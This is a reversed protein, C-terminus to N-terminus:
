DKLLKQQTCKMTGVVFPINIVLGLTDAIIETSSDPVHIIITDRHKLSKIFCSYFFFAYFTTTFLPTCSKTKKNLFPFAECIINLQM